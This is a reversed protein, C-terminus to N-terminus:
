NVLLPALFSIFENVIVEEHGADKMEWKITNLLKAKKYINLRHKSSFTRVRVILSDFKRQYEKAPIAKGKQEAPPFLRNVERVIEHAFLVAEEANFWDLIM